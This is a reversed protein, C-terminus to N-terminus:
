AVRIMQNDTLIMKTSRIVIFNNVKGAKDAVIQISEFPQLSRLTEIIWKENSTLENQHM